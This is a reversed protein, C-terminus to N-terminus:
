FGLYDFLLDAISEEHREEALYQLLYDRAAEDSVSDPLPLILHPLILRDIHLIIKRRGAEDSVWFSRLRDFSYLENNIRIGKPTLTYKVLSPIKAGHLMLAFGGILILLALLINKFLLAIVIFLLTVGGLLGFWHENKEFWEHEYAEWELTKPM